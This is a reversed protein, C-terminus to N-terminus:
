QRVYWYNGQRGNIPYANENTSTVTSVLTSGRSVSNCKSWAEVHVQMRIIYRNPTSDVDLTPTPPTELNVPNKVSCLCIDDQWNIDYYQATEGTDDDQNQFYHSTKSTSYPRSDTHFVILYGGIYSQYEVFTATEDTLDLSALNNDPIEKLVASGSHITGSHFGSWNQWHYYQISTIDTTWTFWENEYYPYASKLYPDYTRTLTYKKWAYRHPILQKRSGSVNAYVYSLQKQAGDVNGYLYKLEKSVGDVNALLSM